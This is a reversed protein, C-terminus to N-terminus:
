FVTCPCISLHISGIAAGGILAAIRKDQETIVTQYEKDFCDFCNRINNEVKYQLVTTTAPGTM